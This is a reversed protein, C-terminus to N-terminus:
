EKHLTYNEVLSRGRGLRMRGNALNEAEQPGFAELAQEPDFSFSTLRMMVYGDDEIAFLTGAPLRVGNIVTPQLSMASPRSYSSRLLQPEGDVPPMLEGQDIYVEADKCGGDRLNVRQDSVPLETLIPETVGREVIDKMMLMAVDAAEHGSPVLARVREAVETSDGEFFGQLGRETDSVAKALERTIESYAHGYRKEIDVEAFANRLHESLELGAMDFSSLLAEAAPTEIFPQVDEYKNNNYDRETKYLEEFDIEFGLEVSSTEGLEQRQPVGGEGRLAMYVGPTETSLLVKELLGHEDFYLGAASEGEELEGGYHAPLAYIRELLAAKLVAPQANPLRSGGMGRASSGVWELILNLDEDLDFSRQTYAEASGAALEERLEDIVDAHIASQERAEADLDVLTQERVPLPVAEEVRFEHSIMTESLRTFVIDVGEGVAVEVGDDETKLKRISDLLPEQGESYRSDLFGLTERMGPSGLGTDITISGHEAVRTFGDDERGSFSTGFLEKSMDLKLARLGFDFRSLAQEHLRTARMERLETLSLPPDVTEGTNEQRRGERESNEGRVLLTESEYSNADESNAATNPNAEIM